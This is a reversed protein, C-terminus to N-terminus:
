KEAAEAELAEGIVKSLQDPCSTQKSGCRIGSLRDIADHADMGQLLSCIGKLNGNCGGKVYVNSIKGNVLEVTMESSCVGKPFGTYQM